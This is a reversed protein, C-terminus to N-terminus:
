LLKALQHAWIKCYQASLHVGDRSADPILFGGQDVMVASPNVFRAGKSDALKILSENQQAIRLNTFTTERDNKEKSVPLVAHLYIEAEPQSARIDDILKGYDELFIDSNLWGLENLGVGVIIKNYQKNGLMDYFSRNQGNISITSGDLLKKVTLSKTCFYDANGVGSYLRFGEIRSDGAILVNDYVSLVDDEELIEVNELPMGLQEVVVEEPKPPRVQAIAAEMEKKKKEELARKAEEEAKAKAEAEAVAADRAKQAQVEKFNKIFFAGGAIIAALLMLAIIVKGKKKIYFKKSRSSRIKRM